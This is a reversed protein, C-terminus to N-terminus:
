IHSVTRRHLVCEGRSPAIDGIDGSDEVGIDCIGYLGYPGDTDGTNVIDGADRIDLRVVVQLAHNLPQL